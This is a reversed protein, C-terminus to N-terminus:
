GVHKFILIVVVVALAYSFINALTRSALTRSVPTRSV